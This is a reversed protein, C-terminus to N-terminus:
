WVSRCEELFCVHLCFVVRLVFAFEGRVMRSTMKLDACFSVDKSSCDCRSKKAKRCKVEWVKVDRIDSYWSKEYNVRGIAVLQRHEKEVVPVEAALSACLRGNSSATRALEEQTRAMGENPALTRTLSESSSPARALRQNSVMMHMPTDESESESACISNSRSSSSRQESIPLRLSSRGCESSGSSSSGRQESSSSGQESETLSTESSSPSKRKRSLVSRTSSSSRSPITKDQLNSRSCQSSLANVERPMSNSSHSSHLQKGFTGASFSPRPFVHASSTMSSTHPVSSSVGHPSPVSAARQENMHLGATWTPVTATAPAASMDVSRARSVSRSRSRSLSKPVKSKMTIKHIEWHWEDESNEGDAKCFSLEYHSNRDKHTSKSKKPRNTKETTAPASKRFVHHNDKLTNTRQWLGNLESRFSNAVIVNRGVFLFYM